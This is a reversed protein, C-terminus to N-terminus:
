DPKTRSRTRLVPGIAFLALSASSFLLPNLGRRMQDIIKDAVDAASVYYIDDISAKNSNAVKTMQLRKTKGIRALVLAHFGPEIWHKPARRSHKMAM